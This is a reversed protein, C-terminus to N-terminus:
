PPSWVTATNGSATAILGLRSVALASIGEDHPLVNPTAKEALPWVDVHSANAVTVFSKGPGFGVGVPSPAGPVVVPIATSGIRWIRTADEGASALLEDDASTQLYEIESEHRVMGVKRGRHADVVWVTQPRASADAGVPPEAVVVLLWRGSKSFALKLVKPGVEGPVRVSVPQRLEGDAVRWLRIDTMTSYSAFRQGDPSFAVLLVFKDLAEMEGSQLNCLSSQEHGCAIALLRGDASFAFDSIRAHNSAWLVTDLNPVAQVTADMGSITALRAGDGSFSIGSIAADHHIPPVLLSEEALDWLRVTKDDAATALLAGDPSFSIHGIKSRPEHSYMGTDRWTSPSPEVPTEVAFRLNAIADVEVQHHLPISFREIVDIIPIAFLVSSAPRAENRRQRSRRDEVQEVVVGIVREEHDMVPSGSYGRFSGIGTQKVDLQVVSVERVRDKLAVSVRPADVSGTLVPDSSKWRSEIRWQADQRPEVHRLLAPVDLALELVAIDLDEDGDLYTANVEPAGQPAFSLRTGEYNRVVHFATVAVRTTLAFAIGLPKGNSFIRGAGM